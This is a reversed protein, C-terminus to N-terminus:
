NDDNDVSPPAVPVQDFRDFTIGVGITITHASWTADPVFGPFSYGYWLQPMLNMTKSQNLPLAYGGGIRFAGVMPNFATAPGSSENRTSTKTDNYVAGVPSTIREVQYYKTTLTVALDLGLGFFARELPEWSIMPTIHLQWADIDLQHEFEGEVPVNQIVTTTEPDLFRARLLGVSARLGVHTNKFASQLYEFGAEFGPDVTNTYEPCCTPQNPLGAFSAVHAYLAGSAFVSLRQKRVSNLLMSDQMTSDPLSEFPTQGIANSLCCVITVIITTLKM